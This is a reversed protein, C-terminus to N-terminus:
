KFNLIAMYVPLNYNKDLLIFNQLMSSQEAFKFAFSVCQCCKKMPKFYRTETQNKWEALVAITEATNCVCFEAWNQNIITKQYLKGDLTYIKIKSPIKSTSVRIKIM